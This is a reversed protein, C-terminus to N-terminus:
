HKSDRFKSKDIEKKIDKLISDREEKSLDASLRRAAIPVIWPEIEDYTISSLRTYEEIFVEIMTERISNFKKVAENSLFPLYSEIVAYRVLIIYEALDAEPNGISAGSWDILLTEGNRILINGPNPDGHCLQNKIPLRDLIGIVAEKEDLTLDDIGRISYKIQERQNPLELKIHHNHLEYLCSATIRINNSEDMGKEDFPPRNNLQHIFREMLSEGNIREFVIGPRGNVEMMEFPQPVSLGSEWLVRSNEYERRMGQISTNAKALKIIKHENEWEYIESCAGEGIKRGLNLDM